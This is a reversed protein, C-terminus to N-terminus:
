RADLRAMLAKEDLKVTKDRTQLYLGGLLRVVSPYNVGKFNEYSTTGTLAGVLGYSLDFDIGEAQLWRRSIKLGEFRADEATLFPGGDRILSIQLGPSIQRDRFIGLSDMATDVYVSVYWLKNFDWQKVNTYVGYDEDGLTIVASDQDHPARLNQVLIAREDRRSRAGRRSVGALVLAGVAGLALLNGSM